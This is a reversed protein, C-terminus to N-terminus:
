RPVLRHLAEMVANLDDPGNYGQFSLRIAHRGGWGITPAEVRYEDYLRRKLEGLDCPPLPLTIMQGFWEPSDPTLPPLDFM